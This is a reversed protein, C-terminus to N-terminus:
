FSGCTGAVAEWFKLESAHCKPARCRRLSGSFVLTHLNPMARVAGAVAMHSGREQTTRVGWLHRPQPYPRASQSSVSKKQSTLCCSVDCALQATRVHSSPRGLLQDVGAIYRSQLTRPTHPHISVYSAISDLLEVPLLLLPATSPSVHSPDIDLQIIDQLVHFSSLLSLSM